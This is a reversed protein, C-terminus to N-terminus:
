STYNYSLCQDWERIGSTTESSPIEVRCSFRVNPASGTQIEGDVSCGMETIVEIANSASDGVGTKHVSGNTPTPTAAVPWAAGPYSGVADLNVQFGGFDAALVADGWGLLESLDEAPTAGGSYTGTLARIFMGVDTISNLGDHRIFVEQVVSSSGNAADGNDFGDSVSAGGNTTSWTINIAM